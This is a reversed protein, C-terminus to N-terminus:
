RPCRPPCRAPAPSCWYCRRRLISRPHRCSCASWASARLRRRRSRATTARRSARTTYSRVILISRSAAELPTDRAVDLGAFGTHRIRQEPLSPRSALGAASRTWTRPCSRRINRREARRPKGSIAACGVASRLALDRPQSPEVRLELFLRPASPPAAVFCDRWAKSVRKLIRTRAYESRKSLHSAAPLRMESALADSTQRRRASRSDCWEGHRVM